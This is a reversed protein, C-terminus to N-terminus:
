FDRETPPVNAALNLPLPRFNTALRGANTRDAPSLSSQLLALRTKSEKDGAAAAIAFWKYADPPSKPLGDGREYLYALNFQSDTM